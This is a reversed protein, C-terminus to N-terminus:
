CLDARIWSRGQISNLLLVTVSIHDYIGSMYLCIDETVDQIQQGIERPKLLKHNKM